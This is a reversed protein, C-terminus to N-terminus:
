LGYRKIKSMCRRVALRCFIRRRTYRVARARWRKPLSRASTANSASRSRCATDESADPVVPTRGVGLVLRDAANRLERVNGPWNSQMLEHRQREALM